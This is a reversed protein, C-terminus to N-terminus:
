VGSNIESSVMQLDWLKIGKSSLIKSLTQDKTKAIISRLEVRKPSEMLRISITENGQTPIEESNNSMIKLVEFPLVFEKEVGSVNLSPFRSFSYTAAVELIATPIKNFDKLVQKFISDFAEKYNKLLVLCFSMYLKEPNESVLSNFNGEDAYFAEIEQRSDFWEDRSVRDLKGFFEHVSREGSDSSDGGKEAIDLVACLVDIPNIDHAQAIKLLPKYIENNWTCDVLFHLKRIYFLEEEDMTTTSRPSEEYEFARLETGDPCKYNGMDGPILRYRTKFEYQERDKTSNVEAGALLRLNHNLIYDVGFTCLSRLGDIHTELTETPLPVILNSWTRSGQDHFMKQYNLYTDSSINDRKINALVNEDMSQIAMIPQTLDGLIKAIEINRVTTNKSLWTCFNKPYGTRDKIERVKHAIKVDRKLMGFNADCNIWHYATSRESIYDIEALVTELDFQRVLNRSSAGWTCFTCTFPCGRNTEIMPFMGAELFEDLFGSLYPSPINDIIKKLPREGTEYLQKGDHWIINEPLLEYNGRSNRWWDVMESFPEEGGGIFLFDIYDHLKLFAAARKPDSDINPGGAVILSDPLMKRLYKGVERNLNENWGYNSFGIIDPREEISQAIFKEPHKFLTIDVTSGHYAVAYAKVYGINLPVAIADDKATFTHVLDALFIKLPKQM